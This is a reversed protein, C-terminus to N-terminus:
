SSLTSQLASIHINAAASFAATPPSPLVTPLISEFYQVVRGTASGVWQCGLNEGFRGAASWLGVWSM